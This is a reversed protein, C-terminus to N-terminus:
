RREKINYRRERDRIYLGDKLGQQYILEFMLEIQENEKEEYKQWLGKLDEPLKSLLEGIINQTEKSLENYKAHTNLVYNCTEDSRQIIFDTYYEELQKFM